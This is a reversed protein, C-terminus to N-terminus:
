WMAPAARVRPTESRGSRWWSAPVMNRALPAANAAVYPQTDNRIPSTSADSGTARPM